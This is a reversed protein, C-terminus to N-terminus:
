LNLIIYVQNIKRTTALKRVIVIGVKCVLSYKEYLYYIEM